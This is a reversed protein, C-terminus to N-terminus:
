FRIDFATIEETLPVEKKKRGGIYGRMNDDVRELFEKIEKEEGECIVEVSGDSLNRVFGPIGLYEAIRRVTFRFGVGQVQGTYVVQIRKIEGMVASGLKYIKETLRSDFISRM